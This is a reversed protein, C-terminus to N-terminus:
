TGSCPKGYSRFNKTATAMPIKLGVARRRADVNARDEIPHFDWKGGICGTQTGFRQPRADYVAVRDYLMAYSTGNVERSPLLTEMRALVQRMLARDPSHQVIIFADSEAQKGYRSIRFWGDSPLVSKLWATNETDVRLLEASVLRWASAKEDEPLFYIAAATRGAQDIEVRRALEGQLSESPGAASMRQRAGSIARSADDVAARARPSLPEGPAQAALLALLLPGLM